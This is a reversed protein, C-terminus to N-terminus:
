AGSDDGAREAQTGPGIGVLSPADAISVVAGELPDVIVFYGDGELNKDDVCCGSLGAVAQLPENVAEFDQREISVPEMGEVVVDGLSSSCRLM